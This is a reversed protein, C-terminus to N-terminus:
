FPNTHPVRHQDPAIIAFILTPWGAEKWELVALISNRKTNSGDGKYDVQALVFGQHGSELKFHL